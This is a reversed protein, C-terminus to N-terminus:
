LMAAMPMLAESGVPALTTPPTNPEGLTVGVSQETAMVVPPVACFMMEADDVMWPNVSAFISVLAPEPSGTHNENVM